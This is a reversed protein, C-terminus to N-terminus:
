RQCLKKGRSCGPWNQKVLVFYQLYRFCVALVKSVKPWLEKRMCKEWSMIIWVNKSSAVWCQFESTFLRNSSSINM